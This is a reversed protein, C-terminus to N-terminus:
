GGWGPVLKAHNRVKREHLRRSTRFLRDGIARSRGDGPPVGVVREIDAWLLGPNFMLRDGVRNADAFEQRRCLASAVDTDGTVDELLERLLQVAMDNRNMTAAV